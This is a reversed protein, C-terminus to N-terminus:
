IQIILGIEFLCSIVLIVQRVIVDQWSCIYAYGKKGYSNTSYIGNVDETFNVSAYGLSHICDRHM